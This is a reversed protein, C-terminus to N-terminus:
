WGGQGQEGSEIVVRGARARGVLQKRGVSGRVSDWVTDATACAFLMCPTVLKKLSLNKSARSGFVFCGRRPKDSGLWVTSPGVLVLGTVLRSSVLRMPSPSPVLRGPM